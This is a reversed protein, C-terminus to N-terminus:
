RVPPRWRRHHFQKRPPCPPTWALLIEHIRDSAHGDGYPRVMQKVTSVFTTDRVRRVADLIAPTAPHVDIISPFRLRGKQRDGVNVTPVGLIPAETMGSSSNGLVVFAQALLALYRQEGLAAFAHVDPWRDAFDSLRERITSNGPDANPLTIIWTAPYQELAGIVAGVEDIDEGTSLTTPHVTVLGVPPKLRIGLSLELAAQDPLASGVIADVSLSGVVHVSSPDEGMALVRQAYEDHTVLHLHSLKTIAHRLANDIAGETEEGGCLHVIPVAQVTASLAAAATEFRDGLLVLAEPGIRSLANAVCEIAQTSQVPAPAEVDWPLEESLPLGAKLIAEAIRGHDPSCAMGGALILPEIAESRAL